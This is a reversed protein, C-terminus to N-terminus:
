PTREAAANRQLQTRVFQQIRVLASQVQQPTPVVTNGGQNSIGLKSVADQLSKQEGSQFSAAVEQKPVAAAAPQAVNGSSTAGSSSASDTGSGSGASAVAEGANAEASGLIMASVPDQAAAGSATAGDGDLALTSSVESSFDVDFAAEGFVAVLASAVDSATTSYVDQPLIVDTSELLAVALVEPTASQLDGFVEFSSGTEIAM